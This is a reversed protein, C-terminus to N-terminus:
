MVNKDKLGIKTCLVNLYNRIVNWNTHRRNFFERIKEVTDYITYDPKCEILAYKHSGLHILGLDCKSCTDLESLNSAPDLTSWYNARNVLIAHRNYQKCLLFLAIEDVAKNVNSTKIYWSTFNLHESKFYTKALNCVEEEWESVWRLLDDQIDSPNKGSYVSFIQFVGSPIAQGKKDILQNTLLNCSKSTYKRLHYLESLTICDSIKPQEITIAYNDSFISNYFEETLNKAAM